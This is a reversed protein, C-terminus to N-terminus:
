RGVPTFSPGHFALACPLLGQKKGLRGPDNGRRGDYPLQLALARQPAVKVLHECVIGPPLFAPFLRFAFHELLGHTPGQILDPQFAAVHIAQQSAIQEVLDDGGVKGGPLQFGRKQAQVAGTGGHRFAQQDATHEDVSAIGASHGACGGAMETRRLPLETGGQLHAALAKVTEVPYVEMGDALTAEPANDAPVFLRKLGARRAALAMPLVGSVPRLAGSLSLEGILAADEMGRFPLQGSAALIGVLIPLDYVTGAKKRDAPALNVTIRSVPFDFGSAKIASRVRERAEKVATDPLGVVDFAPLGGSLACEASVLYGSVGHLGLSRVSCVM